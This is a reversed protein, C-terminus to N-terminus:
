TVRPLNAKLDSRADLSSLAREALDVLHLLSLAKKPGINRLGLIDRVDLTADM